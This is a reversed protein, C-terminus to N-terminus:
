FYERGLHDYMTISQSAGVREWALGKIHEGITAFVNGGIFQFSNQFSFVGHKSRDILSSHKHCDGIFIFFKLENFNNLKKLIEISFVEWHDRHVGPNNLQTTLSMPMMLINQASWGFFSTFKPNVRRQTYKHVGMLINRGDESMQYSSDQTGFFLFEQGYQRFRASSPPEDYIFIVRVKSYITKYFCSFLRSESPIIDKGTPYKLNLRQIERSIITQWDM